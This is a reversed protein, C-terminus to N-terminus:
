KIVRDARALVNPTITLGIQKATKLNIVFEFKTPLEVPLDAPKTGKLIKDIYVAIRKVSENLDPGYALLGGAEVYEKWGFMSPLRQKTAFAAIQERHANTLADPFVLLANGKEKIVADFAAGFDAPDRVQHYQLTTGLARATTQTEQLERQEGPHAPNALVAVRSVRPVAEKLLEVRKGVLEYALFTMGTANGGPRALSQVLGAEIPDGSFWFVIPVVSTAMKAPIAAPGMAVIVDVKERVLEAAVAPVRDRSGEAHRYEIAINQGEIYGLQLLAERLAEIRPALSSPPTVTLVGIRPIKKPQQAQASLSLALLLAGLSLIFIKKNM